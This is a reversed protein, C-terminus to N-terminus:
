IQIAILFSSFLYFSALIPWKLFRVIQDGTCPNSGVVEPNRTEPLHQYGHYALLGLGTFSVRKCKLLKHLSLQDYSTCIYILQYSTM